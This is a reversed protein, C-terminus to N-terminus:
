LVYRALDQSGAAEALKDNVYAADLKITKGTSAAADFSL